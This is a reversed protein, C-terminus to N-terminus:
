VPGYVVYIATLKRCRGAEEDVAVAICAKNTEATANGTDTHKRSCPDLVASVM